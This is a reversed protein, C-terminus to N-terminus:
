AHRRMLIDKAQNVRAADDTTGGHDPHREKMLRRHARAIDDRTADARLGLTQYAEQETMDSSSRRSSRGSGEGQGADGADSDGEGATRWGAFRRDFYTELLLAADRDSAVCDRYLADCEARSLEALRRGAFPGALVEGEVAGSAHDLSMILTATRVDSRGPAKAGGTFAQSWDSNWFAPKKAGGFLWLSLGALGAAFSVRGRLLALLAVALALFGGGNRMGAAVQAPSARGVQRLGYVCLILALLGIFLFPM